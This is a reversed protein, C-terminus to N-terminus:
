WAGRLESVQSDSQELQFCCAAEAFSTIGARGGRGMSRTSDPARPSAGSYVEIIRLQMWTQSLLHIM